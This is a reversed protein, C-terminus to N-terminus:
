QSIECMFFGPKAPIAKMCNEFAKILDLGNPSTKM